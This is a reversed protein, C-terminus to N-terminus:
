SAGASYFKVEKTLWEEEVAKALCGLAKDVFASKSDSALRLLLSQIAGDEVLTRKLAKLSAAEVETNEDATDVSYRFRQLAMRLPRLRPLVISAAAAGVIRKFLKEYEAVKAKMDALLLQQQRRETEDQVGEM